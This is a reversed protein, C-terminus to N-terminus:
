SRVAGRVAGLARLVAAPREVHAFHGAGSVREEQFGDIRAALDATDADGAFVDHAGRVSRVPCTIAEWRSRDYAVALRAARAFSRPRVEDAFAQAVAPDPREAFLPATLLPLLGLAGVFRVFGRGARDWVSLLRMLALMGAFAPLRIGGRVPRRIADVVAAGSPSVLVVGRTEGPHRAALDLALFGGLSHGVVVWSAYGEAHLCGVLADVVEETSRATLAGSDGWGPLDVAVVDSTDGRSVLLPQWTTWSGAAGHLLLLAPGGTSPGLHMGVDRLPSRRELDLADARDRLRNDM